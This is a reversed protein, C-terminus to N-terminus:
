NHIYRRKDVSRNIILIISLSIILGVMVLLISDVTEPNAIEYIKDQIVPPIISEIKVFSAEITVDAEPMKFINSKIIITNDELDTNLLDNTDNNTKKEESYAIEKGNNDVIKLSYLKYGKKPSVKFKIEDDEFAQDIVEIEGEGKVLTKIKSPPVFIAKITVNSEPMTFRNSVITITGDDNTVMERLNFAVENNNEDRINVGKLKYGESNIVKFIIRKGGVAYDIVEIEGKGEVEKDIKYKLIDSSITVVPRIGAGLTTVLRLFSQCNSGVYYNQDVGSSCVGGVSNIFIVNNVGILNNSKEYGSRIWYTTNYLFKEKESLYDNLNAFEYHPPAITRTHDYWDQYPITKNNSNIINSVDELTLLDVNNITFGLNELSYKYISLYRSVEGNEVVLDYFLNDYKTSSSEDVWLDRAGVGADARIYIDGIQPYLYNDDEDWHASLAKKNQYVVGDVSSNSVSFCYGPASYFNDSRITLGKESGFDSCYSSDTRSDGEPKNVRIKYINEGVLLNYKSLLKIEQNNTGIVYFYEGGCEIEDGIKRGTGSIVTCKGDLSKDHEVPVVEELPEDLVRNIPRFIVKITVDSDPQYFYYAIPGGYVNLLKGNSNKVIIKDVYYGSDPFAYFIISHDFEYDSVNLEVRGNETSSITAFNENLFIAVPCNGDLNDVHDGADYKCVGDNEIFPADSNKLIIRYSGDYVGYGIDFTGDFISSISERDGRELFIRCNNPYRSFFEDCYSNSPPLIRITKGSFTYGEHNVLYILGYVQEANTVTYITDTEYTNENFWSIDYAFVMHIPIFLLFLLILMKIKSM